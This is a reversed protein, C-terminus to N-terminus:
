PNAQAGWGVGGRCFFCMSFGLEWHKHIHGKKSISDKSIYDPSSSTM